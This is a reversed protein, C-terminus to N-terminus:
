RPRLCSPSQIPLPDAPESEECAPTAQQARGARLINIAANIDAHAVHGCAQCCFEAQTRRNAAATYGCHACRQSTHRPDVAIVDRGAEEAKYAILSLLQGWGADHISRNLGAKAAAGNPLYAGDKARRPKPRRVMAAVHLDEHVILDYQNVLARSVQHALNHRQNRIKRHAAGVRERARQRRKSGRRKSALDAQAATLRTAARRGYRGETVLEGDSTALQACVGLDIGVQRGTSPLPVAPVDVCRISVWWRRGERRVTIAKATGRLSRHLRVKVHGVGLLRLRRQELDLGWGSRDEWQVSDFRAASRFRPYGPPQGARCRRYFAEFARDLRKLTGRCVKVGFELVEPRVERLGTLTRCQDVYSVSRREWRWAGRREELAANYLECQQGVLRELSVRQGATPYLVFRFSRCRGMSALM